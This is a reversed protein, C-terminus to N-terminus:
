SPSLRLDRVILQLKKQGNWEDSSVEFVIDLKPLKGRTSGLLGGGELSPPVLKCYKEGKGFGIAEFITDPRDNEGPCARFWMKLHKNGNGVLQCQFLEVKEALFLPTSNGVGFPEMSNIEKLLTWNVDSLKIRQDIKTEWALDEERLLKNAIRNLRRKIKEKNELLFTFGGAYDHGGYGLLLERCQELVPVVKFKGTSRVSGRCSEEGENFIFAARAYRETIKGAALGLIGVPWEPSGAFVLKHKLNIKNEIEKVVKDTLRQRRGNKTELESALAAAKKVDDTGLLEFSSDAHDMRGAANLRPAVQFSIQGTTPPDKPSLPIRASSFISQIGVRKTKSLVILGYKVLTRNEGVLPVMDAVTGLAVLDLLWKEFGEEFKGKPSAAILACALKFAVGVGALELFPYVEKEVKPNIIAYAPPLETGPMHHDTLITEIGWGRTKKIEAVDRISCDVTIILKVGLSKLHKIAPLNLSYGERQRDPIYVIPKVGLKKLTIEVILSSTLGDVDYDGFIAIKEKKRVAQLIRQVAKEMERFIFPDHIDNEFDPNFFNMVAQKDRGIRHYLLDLVTKSYEPFKKYFENPAPPLVKWTKRLTM